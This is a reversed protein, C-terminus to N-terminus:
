VEECAVRLVPDTAKVPMWDAGLIEGDSGFEIGDVIDARQNTGCDFLMPVKATRTWRGYFVLDVIRQDPQAPHTRMSAQDVAVFRTVFPKAYTWPRYFVKEEVTQAVVFGQPMTAATRDFWGYESSVTAILMALGASAPMLWSPLRGKLLTRNVAWFILAMAAGAMITGILEFLM